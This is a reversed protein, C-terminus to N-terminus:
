VACAFWLAFWSALFAFSAASCFEFVCDFCLVRSPFLLAFIAFAYVIAFFGLAARECLPVECFWGFARGFALAFLLLLNTQKSTQRRLRSFFSWTRQLAGAETQAAAESHAM